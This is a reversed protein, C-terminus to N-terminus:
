RRVFAGNSEMGMEGFDSPASIGIGQGFIM